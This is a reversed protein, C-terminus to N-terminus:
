FTEYMGVCDIVHFSVHIWLILIDTDTMIQPVTSKLSRGLLEIFPGKRGDAQWVM